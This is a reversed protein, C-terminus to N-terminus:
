AHHRRLAKMRALKIGITAAIVGAILMAFVISVAITLARGQILTAIFAIFSSYTTFAGMMGTGLFLRLSKQKTQDKSSRILAELTYGLIFAGAINVVFLAYLTSLIAFLGSRILGGICGGAFVLAIDRATFSGQRSPKSNDTDPDLLFEDEELLLEDNHNEEHRLETYKSSM